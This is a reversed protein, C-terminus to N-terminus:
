KEMEIVHTTNKCNLISPLCAPTFFLLSDIRTALKTSRVHFVDNGPSADIGHPMGQHFCATARAAPPQYRDRIIARLLLAFGVACSEICGPPPQQASFSLQKPMDLNLNYIM